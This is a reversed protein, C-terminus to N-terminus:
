WRKLRTTMTDMSETSLYFHKVRFSPPQIEHLLVDSWSHRVQVFAMTCIHSFEYRAMYAHMFDIDSQSM